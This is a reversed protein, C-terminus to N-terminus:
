FPHHATLLHRRRRLTLEVSSWVSVVNGTTMAWATPSLTVKHRQSPLLGVPLNIVESDAWAQGSLFGPQKLSATPSQASGLFSLWPHQPVMLLWGTDSSHMGTWLINWLQVLTKWLHLKVKAIPLALWVSVYPYLWRCASIRSIGSFIWCEETQAVSLELVSPHQWRRPKGVLLLVKM